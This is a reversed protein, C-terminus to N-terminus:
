KGMFQAAAHQAAVAVVVLCIQIVALILLFELLKLTRHRAAFRLGALAKHRGKSASRYSDSGKVLEVDQTPLLYDFYRDLLLSTNAWWALAFLVFFAAAVATEFANTLYCCRLQLDNASLLALAFLVTQPGLNRLYELFPGRGEVSLVFM